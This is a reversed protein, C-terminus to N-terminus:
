SKCVEFSVENVAKEIVEQTDGLGTRTAKFKISDLGPCSPSSTTSFGDHFEGHFWGPQLRSSYQETLYGRVM